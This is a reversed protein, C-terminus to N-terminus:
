IEKTLIEHLGEVCLSLNIAMVFTSEGQVTARWKMDGTLALFHVKKGAIESAYGGLAPRLTIGQRTLKRRRM